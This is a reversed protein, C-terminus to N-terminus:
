EIRDGHSLDVDKGALSPADHQHRGHKAAVGIAPEKAVKDTTRAEVPGSAREAIEKGIVSGTPHPEAV